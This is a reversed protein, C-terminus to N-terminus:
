ERTCGESNEASLGFFGAKCKDCRPGEVNAKCRCQGGVIGLSPDTHSDCIGGNQSGDPDCDCATTVTVPVPFCLLRKLIHFWLFVDEVQFLETCELLSMYVSTSVKVSGQTGSIKSHIKTTSPNVCRVTADWQTISVTTM